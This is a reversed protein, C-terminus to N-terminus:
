QKQHVQRQELKQREQEQQKGLNDMQQQHREQMQPNVSARSTPPRDNYPRNNPRNEPQAQPQNPPTAPRNNNPQAQPQNQQPPRNANPQAQAPPQNQAPRNNNPQAQAPRNNNPQPQNAQGPRNNMRQGAPPLQAPRAEQAVRVNNRPANNERIQSVAVPRGGNAQVKQFQQNVPAVPPPPATKAVVPRAMVR